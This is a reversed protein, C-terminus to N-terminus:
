PIANVHHKKHLRTEIFLVFTCPHVLRLKPSDLKDLLSPQLKVGGESESMMSDGYPRPNRLADKRDKEKKQLDEMQMALLARNQELMEKAPIM